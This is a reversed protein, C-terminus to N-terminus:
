MTIEDLSDKEYTFLYQGMSEFQPLYMLSEYINLVYPVQASVVHILGNRALINSQGVVISAGALSEDRFPLYKGNLMRAMKDIQAAYSYPTRTLHNMVFRKEVLDNGAYTACLAL